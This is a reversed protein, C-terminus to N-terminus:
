SEMLWPATRWNQITRLDRPLDTYTCRAEKKETDIEHIILTSRDGHLGPWVGSWEGILAQKQEATTQAQAQTAFVVIWATILVAVFAFVRSKM